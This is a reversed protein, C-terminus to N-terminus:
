LNGGPPPPPTGGPLNIEKAINSKSYLDSVATLLQPLEEKLFAESGEYEVEIPGLKIRIKSNM